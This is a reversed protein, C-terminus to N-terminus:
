RCVSACGDREGATDTRHSYRGGLLGEVRKLAPGGLEQAKKSIDNIASSVKEQAAARSTSTSSFNRGQRAIARVATSRAFVM